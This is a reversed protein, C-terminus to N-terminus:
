MNPIELEKESFRDHIHKFITLFEEPTVRLQPNNSGGQDEIYEGFMKRSQSNAIVRDNDENIRHKILKQLFYNWAKTSDVGENVARRYAGIYIWTIFATQKFARDWDEPIEIGSENLYKVKANDYDSNTSSRGGSLYKPIEERGMEEFADVTIIRPLDEIGISGEEGTYDIEREM